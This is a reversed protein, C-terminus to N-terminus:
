MYKFLRTARPARTTGPAGCCLLWCSSFDGCYFCGTAAAALLAATPLLLLLPLLLCVFLLWCICVDPPFDLVLWCCGAPTDVGLLQRCCCGAFYPLDTLLSLLYRFCCCCSPEHLQFYCTYTGFVTRQPKTIVYRYGGGWNM